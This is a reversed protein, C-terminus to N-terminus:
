KHNYRPRQPRTPYRDLSRDERTHRKNSGYSLTDCINRATVSDRIQWSRPGEWLDTARIGTEQLITQLNYWPIPFRKFFLWVRFSISADAFEPNQLYLLMMTKWFESKSGDPISHWFLYAMTIKEMLIEDHVWRCELVGNDKIEFFHDKPSYDGKWVQRLFDVPLGAIQAITSQRQERLSNM